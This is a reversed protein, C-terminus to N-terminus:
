PQLPKSAEGSGAEEAPWLDWASEVSAGNDNEYSDYDQVLKLSDVPSAPSERNIELIRAMRRGTKSGATVILCERRDPHQSIPEKTQPFGDITTPLAESEAKEVIRMWGESIYLYADCKQENAQMRLFHKMLLNLERAPADMEARMQVVGERFVLYFPNSIEFSNDDHYKECFQRQIGDLMTKLDVGKIRRM